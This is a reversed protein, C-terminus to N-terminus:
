FAGNQHKRALEVGVDNIEAAVDDQGLFAGTGDPTALIGRLSQGLSVPLINEAGCAEMVRVLEFSVFFLEESLPLTRREVVRRYGGLSKAFFGSIGTPALVGREQTAGASLTPFLSLGDGGMREFFVWRTVGAARLTAGLERFFGTERKSSAVSEELMRGVRSEVRGLGRVFLRRLFSEAKEWFANMVAVTFLVGMVKNGLGSFLGTEALLNGMFGNVIEAVIPIAMAFIWFTLRNANLLGLFDHKLCLGLFLVLGVASLVAGTWFVPTAWPGGGALPALWHNDGANELSLTLLRIPLLLCLWVAPFRWGLVPVESRERRSKRLLWGVASLAGVRLFAEAWFVDAGHGGYVMGALLGWQVIGSLVAVALTLGAFRLLRVPGTRPRGRMAPLCLLVFAAAIAIGGVGNAIGTAFIAAVGVVGGLLSGLPGEMALNWLSRRFEVALSEDAALVVIPLAAIAVGIFLATPSDGGREWFLLGALVLCLFAPIALALQRSGIRRLAERDMPRMGLIGASCVTAPRIRGSGDLMSFFPRATRKDLHFLISHFGNNMRAGVEHANRATVRYPALATTLDELAAESDEPAKRIAEMANCIRVALSSLHVNDDVWLAIRRGRLRIDAPLRDELEGLNEVNQIISTFWAAEANNRTQALGSFAMLRDRLEYHVTGRKWAEGKRSPDVLAVFPVDYMDGGSLDGETLVRGIEPAYVAFDRSDEGSARFPVEWLELLHRHAADMHLLVPRESPEPFRFRAGGELAALTLFAPSLLFLVAFARVVYRRGERVSGFRALRSADTALWGAKRAAFALVISVGLAVAMTEAMPVGAVAIRNSMSFCVAPLVMAFPARFVAEITRPAFFGGTGFDLALGALFAFCLLGLTEVAFKDFYAGPAGAPPQLLLPLLLCPVLVRGAWAVRGFVGLLFAAVPIGVLLGEFISRLLEPRAVAFPLSLTWMTGALLALTWVALRKGRRHIEQAAQAAGYGVAPALAELTGSFDSLGFEFRPLKLM